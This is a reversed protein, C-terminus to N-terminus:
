KSLISPIYNDFMEFAGDDHRTRTSKLTRYLDDFLGTEHPKRYKQTLLGAGVLRSWQNAFPQEIEGDSVLLM